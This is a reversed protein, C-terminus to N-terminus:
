QDDTPGENLHLYIAVVIRALMIAYIAYRITRFVQKM